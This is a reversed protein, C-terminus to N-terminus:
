SKLGFDSPKKGAATILGHAYEPDDKAVKMARTLNFSAGDAFPNDIPDNSGRLHKAEALLSMGAKGFMMALTSSAVIRQEKGDKDKVRMIAGIRELEDWAEQGGAENIFRDAFELHTRATPGNLPGLLKVLKDTEVKATEAFEKVKAEAQGNYDAVRDAIFQDHLAAAQAQNLGISHALTKFKGAAEGDYPLAEPLDKPVTFKYADATEPRGLKNLYATKEEETADKGPIRVANGLLKAQEHSKKALDEVSKVGSKQLWDRTDQEIAPATMWEPTEPPSGEGGKVGGDSKQTDPKTEVTKDTNTEVTKDAGGEVKTEVQETGNEETPM